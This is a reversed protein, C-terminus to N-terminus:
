EKVGTIEQDSVAFVVCGGVRSEAPWLEITEIPRKIIEIGERLAVITERQPHDVLVAAVRPQGEGRHAFPRVPDGVEQTFAAHPAAVADEDHEAVDHREPLDGQGQHLQSGHDARRRGQERRGVELVADFAAADPM